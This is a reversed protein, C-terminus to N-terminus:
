DAIKDMPEPLSNYFMGGIYTASRLKKFAM